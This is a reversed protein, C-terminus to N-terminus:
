VASRGRGCQWVDAAIDAALVFVSGGVAGGISVGITVATTAAAAAAAAPAKLAVLRLLLREVLPDLRLPPPVKRRRVPQAILELRVAYKRLPLPRRSAAAATATTAIAGAVTTRASGASEAATAGASSTGRTSPPIAAHLLAPQPRPSAHLAHRKCHAMRSRSPKERLIAVNYRMM